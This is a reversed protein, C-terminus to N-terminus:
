IFLEVYETVINRLWYRIDSWKEQRMPKEIKVIDEHMSSTYENDAKLRSNLVYRM